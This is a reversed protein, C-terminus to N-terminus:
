LIVGKVVVYGAGHLRGNWWNKQNDAGALGHLGKRIEISPNRRVIHGNTATIWKGRSDIGLFIVTHVPAKEEFLVVYGAKLYKEIASRIRNNHKGDNSHWFAVEYGAIKNIVAKCGWISLKSGNYGGVEKKAKQYIERPNWITGDKQKIGLAQLAISCAAMSCGHKQCFMGFEKQQPILLKRGNKEVLFPYKKSNRKKIEM